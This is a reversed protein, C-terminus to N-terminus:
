YTRAVLAEWCEVGPQNRLGARMRRKACAEIAEKVKEDDLM